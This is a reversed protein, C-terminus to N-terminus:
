AMTAPSANADPARTEAEAFIWEVSPDQICRTIVGIVTGVALGTVASICLAAATVGGAAAGPGTPSTAVAGLIGCVGGLITIVAWPIGANALNANICQLTSRPKGERAIKEPTALTSLAGSRALLHTVGGPRDDSSRTAASCAPCAGASSSAQEAVHGQWPRTAALHVSRELLQAEEGRQQERALRLGRALLDTPSGVPEGITSALGVQDSPALELATVRDAMEEAELEEPDRPQSVALKASIKPGQEEECGACMRQAHTDSASSAGGQQVVHTLEHALLHRGASSAPDYAGSQFFIDSCTAFAVAGVADNLSHAEADTHVRVASFDAGFASEMQAQVREELPQGGGRAREIGSEVARAAESHAQGQRAVMRGVHQNGYKQQLRLVLGRNGQGAARAGLGPAGFRPLAPARAKSRHSASLGVKFQM